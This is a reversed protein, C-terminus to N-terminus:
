KFLNITDKFILFVMLGMLVAFGAANLYSEMETTFRGGTIVRIITALIRGGDLAPFPLLNVVGLNLSIVAMLVIVNLLGNQASQGVASVIGVVGVVDDSQAKGRFLRALFERFGEVYSSCISAATKISNGLRHTVKCSFGCIYRGLEENYEPTVSFSLEEGGRKVTIKVPKGEADNIAYVIDSWDDYRTDDIAVIKDGPRIGAIDAPGGETVTGLTTSLSGAYLSVLVLILFAVIINVTAGAALIIIQKWWAAKSFSRGDDSDGDEGELKCFGGIPVARLSYQTEGKTKQYILPGMGVSFENVRVNFLKAAAFHGLEHSVVLLLFFLIAVIYGLVVM